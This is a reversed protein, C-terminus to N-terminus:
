QGLKHLSNMVLMHQIKEIEKKITRLLTTINKVDIQQEFNQNTKPVNASINEVNKGLDQNSLKNLNPATLM